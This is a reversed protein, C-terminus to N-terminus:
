ANELATIRATLAEILTQQEQIAKTLVATLQGYAIGKQEVNDPNIGTTVIEPVHLEMEQAVFGVQEVDSSKLKYKRPKLSKVTDIGYEIDAIDKKLRVDSADVFAGSSNIIGENTGNWFRLDNNAENWYMRRYFGTSGSEGVGVGGSSVNLFGGFTLTTGVQVTNLGADVFLMNSNGDSEVRFDTDIGSQNVIVGDSSALEISSAAINLATYQSTSRDYSIIESIGSINPDLEIGNAGQESVVFKRSPNSTGVGVSGQGGEGAANVFLAHTNSDSEVRFDMDVGSENFAVETTQARFFGATASNYFYLSNQYPSSTGNGGVGIQWTTGSTGTNQFDIYSYSSDNTTTFLGSAYADSGAPNVHLTASPTGQNLGVRGNGADVFLAHTNGDSEVRFDQDRGDDNFIVQTDRLALIQSGTSFNSGSTLFKFHDDSRVWFNLSDTDAYQGIQAFTNGGKGFSLRVDNTGDDTTSDIRLYSSNGPKIHLNYSPNSLGIGIRSSSAEVVLANVDSDSEVRFDTDRSDENIVVETGSLRFQEYFNSDKVVRFQMVSSATAASSWNEEGFTRIQAAQVSSSDDSRTSYWSLSGGYGGAQENRLDLGTGHGASSWAVSLANTPASDSIGVRDNGADVFLMHTQNDSEVRFDRDAGQENFTSGASADYVFSATAGDTDYFTIDGTGGDIKLALRTNAATSADGEVRLEMDGNVNKFSVGGVQDALLVETGSDTSVGLLATNGIGSEVTLGDSVLTGTVNAGTSDAKFVQTGGVTIGVEDAAPFYLGTNTDGTNTLSPASNTGDALSLIGDVTLTGDVTINHLNTYLETVNAAAGIGDTAIIKTVGNPLTVNSGSGASITLTQGGSTNNEIIWVKSTTNPALTVTRTTTLDVSSNIKLALSRAADAAGDAITVTTDADAITETGYSFADAILELNTNTKTGWSGSNEGTAMEELRLDNEYTSAM